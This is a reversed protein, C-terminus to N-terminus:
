RGALLVVGALVLAAGGAARGIPIADGAVRDIVVGVIIQGAFAVALTSTTGGRASAVGLAGVAIAGLAGAGAWWWSGTGRVVDAWSHTSAVWVLAATGGAIAVLLSLPGAAIDEATRGLLRVQIAILCGAGAAIFLGQRM